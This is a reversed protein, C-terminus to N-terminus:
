ASGAPSGQNQCQKLCHMKDLPHQQGRHANQHTLHPSPCWMLTLPHECSAQEPWVPNLRPQAGEGFVLRQQLFPPLLPSLQPLPSASYTLSEADCCQNWPCLMMIRHLLLHSVLVQWRHVPMEIMTMYGRGPNHPAHRPLRATRICRCLRLHVCRKLEFPPLAFADPCLM